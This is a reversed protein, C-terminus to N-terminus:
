YSWPLDTCDASYGMGMGVSGKPLYNTSISIRPESSLNESVSHELKSPFVVLTKPKVKHIHCIETDCDDQLQMNKTYYESKRSFWTDGSEGSVFYICSLYSWSHWHRHHWENTVSQNIWMSVPTLSDCFVCKEEKRVKNVQKNQWLVFERLQEDKHFHQDTSKGFHPENYRKAVADWELNSVYNTVSKHLKEPAEFQYVTLPLIRLKKM